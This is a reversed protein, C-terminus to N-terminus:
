VASLDPDSWEPTRTIGAQPLCAHLGHNKGAPQGDVGWSRAGGRLRSCGRRSMRGARRRAVLGVPAGRRRGMRLVFPTLVSLHAQTRCESPM